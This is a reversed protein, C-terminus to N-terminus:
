NVTLAKETLVKVINELLLKGMSLKWQKIKLRFICVNSNLITWITSNEWMNMGKLTYLKPYLSTIITLTLHCLVGNIEM